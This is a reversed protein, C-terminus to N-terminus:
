VHLLALAKGARRVLHKADPTLEKALAIAVGAEELLGIAANIADLAEDADPAPPAWPLAHAPPLPQHLRLAELLTSM